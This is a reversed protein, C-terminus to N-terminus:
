RGMRLSNSVIEGIKSKFKELTFENVYKFLFERLSGQLEDDSLVKIIKKIADESNEYVLSQNNGVIEVQGGDNPVFVINGARVMEAVAIGFHEKPMAHIGYKHNALVKLMEDRSLGENLILWSSNEEILKLIKKGYDSKELKGIIHLHINYGSERVSHLINIINEIRKEPTIRGVCVFGNERNHWNVIPFNGVVVSYVVKPTIGYAKQIAKATWNSNTLTINEKMSDLSFNSIKIGLEKYIRRLFTDKYIFSNSMLQMERAINEELIPFHIYQIGPKGFDMENFTSFFIDFDNIHYKCYRMAFHQKLILFRNSWKVFNPIPLKVVSFDSQQLSTGYINNLLSLDIESSTILYINYLSKLAEITWLTLAEAGGLRFEPFIIAIKNSLNRGM